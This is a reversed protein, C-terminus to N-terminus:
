DIVIRQNPSDVTQVGRTIIKRIWIRSGLFVVAENSGGSVIKRIGIRSGLFIVRKHSRSSRNIARWDPIEECFPVSQRTGTIAIQKERKMTMAPRMTM